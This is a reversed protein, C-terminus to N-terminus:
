WCAATLRPRPSRRAIFATPRKPTGNCIRRRMRSRRAPKRLRNAMEATLIAALDDAHDIILQHWRWLMDSRDRATLAAWGAQATYANDIAM